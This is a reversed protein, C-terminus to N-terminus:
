PRQKKHDKLDDYILKVTGFYIITGLLLFLYDNSAENTIREQMFALVESELWAVSQGGGISIKKPFLGEDNTFYLHLAHYGTLHTM